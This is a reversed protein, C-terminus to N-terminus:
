AQQAKKKAKDNFYRVVAIVLGIGLVIGGLANISLPQSVKRFFTDLLLGLILLGGFLRNHYFCFGSFWTPWLAELGAPPGNPRPKTLVAVAYFARQGAFLILLM